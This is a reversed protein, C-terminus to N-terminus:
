YLGLRRNWGVLDNSTKESGCIDVKDKLWDRQKIPHNRHHGTNWTNGLETRNKSSWRGGLRDVGQPTSIGLTM